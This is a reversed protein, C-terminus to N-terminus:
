KKKKRISNLIDKMVGPSDGKVIFDFDELTMGEKDLNIILSKRKEM